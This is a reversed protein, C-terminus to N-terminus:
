RLKAASAVARRFDERSALRYHIQRPFRHGLAPGGAARSRMEFLRMWPVRERTAASRWCGGATSTLAEAM